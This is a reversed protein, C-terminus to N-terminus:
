SAGRATELHDRLTDRIIRAKAITELTYDLLEDPYPHNLEPVNLLERLVEVLDTALHGPIPISRTM